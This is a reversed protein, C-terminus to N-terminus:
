GAARVKAASEAADLLDTLARTRFADAEPFSELRGEELWTHAGDMVRAAVENLRADDNAWLNHFLQKVKRRSRRCFLDALEVAQRGNPDDDDLM